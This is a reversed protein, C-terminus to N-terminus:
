KSIDRYNDLFDIHELLKRKTIIPINQKELQSEIYKRNVIITNKLRDNSIYSFNITDQLINYLTYNELRGIFGLEYLHIQTINSVGNEIFNPFNEINLIIKLGKSSLYSSVTSIISRSLFLFKSNIKDAFIDFIDSVNKKIDLQHYWKGMLWNNLVCYYQSYDEKYFITCFNLFKNLIDTVTINEDIWFSEDFDILSIMKEYRCIGFKSAKLESLKGESIFKGIRQSRYSFLSKFINKEEENVMKYTLSEQAFENVVSDIDDETIIDPLMSIISVDMKDILESIIDQAELWENTFNISNISLFSKLGKVIRLLNSFAAETQDNIVKEMLEFEKDNVSIVIGETEHGARGTRGFLNKLDRVKLPRIQKGDHRRCSNVVLTKIPFNVGEAITNTCVFYRVWEKRLYDEVLERLFQPLHGHHFLIGHQAAITLMYSSGVVIQLYAELNQIEDINAYSIPKELHLSQIIELSANIVSDVEPRKACFIAVSGAVLSKMGIIASKKIFSNLIYTKKRNTLPNIYSIDAETIFKNLYYTNNESLIRIKWSKDNAHELFGYSINTPRYVSKIINTPNDENSLWCHIEQINPLIASLFIFRINDNKKLKTLLLEYSLGRSEDGILHGEDCIVISYQDYINPILNKYAILKEPTAVLLNINQIDDTDQKTPENGGYVVKCKIGLQKLRKCMGNKLESALSRFPVLFLINIQKNKIFESVILMECIATKGASTPMQLSMTRNDTLLGKSLAERQSPFFSWIKKDILSRIYACWFESESSYSLDNWINDSSFKKMLVLSIKIPLFNIPGSSEFMRELSTYLNSLITRDGKYVFDKLYLVLNNETKKRKIERSLFSVLFENIGDLNETELLFKALLCAISSRNALYYLSSAYLLASFGSITIFTNKTEKLGYIELGKAIMLAENEDFEKADLINDLKGILSIYFDDYRNYFDYNSMAEESLRFQKFKQWSESQLIWNRLDAM